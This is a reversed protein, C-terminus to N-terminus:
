ANKQAICILRHSSAKFPQGEFGSYTHLIELGAQKLAPKIEVLDYPRQDHIEVASDSFRFVTSAMRTGPDYNWEQWFSHGAIDKYCSGNIRNLYHCTTVSDFIFLGSPRLVGSVCGFMSLLDQPNTLYNLADFSCCVLDFSKKLHFSTMDHKIFALNALGDAKNRAIDIMDGSIDLGLVQHGRKALSIALNGTGCAIDLIKATAIGRQELFQEILKLYQLAFVGWGSDYVSSLRHYIKM